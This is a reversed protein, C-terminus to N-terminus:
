SVLFALGSQKMVNLKAQQAGEVENGFFFQLLQQQETISTDDPADRLEGVGTGAQNNHLLLVRAHGIVVVQGLKDLGVHGHDVLVPDNFAEAGVGDLGDDLKDLVRAGLSVQDLGSVLAESVCLQRSFHLFFLNSIFQDQIFLTQCTHKLSAPTANSVSILTTPRSFSYM